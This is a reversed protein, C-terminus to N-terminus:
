KTPSLAYAIYVSGTVGFLNWFEDPLISTCYRIDLYKLGRCASLVDFIGESTIHECGVFSLIKFHNETNDSLCRLGVDTINCSHFSLETLAKCNKVIFSLGCDTIGKGASIYVKELGDQSKFLKTIEEDSLSPCSISIKEVKKCVAFFSSLINIDNKAIEFSADTIFPAIRIFIGSQLHLSTVKKSFHVTYGQSLSAYLVKLGGNFWHKSVLGYNKVWHLWEWYDITHKKTNIFGSFSTIMSLEDECLDNFSAQALSSNNWLIVVLLLVFQLFKKM